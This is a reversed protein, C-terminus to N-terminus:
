SRLEKVEEIKNAYVYWLWGKVNPMGMQRLLQMYESVQQQYEPRPHGFKFDIVITENGDTMVRDPRREEISGDEKVQLITCENYIKWRDSFWDKVRSDELRKRLLETVKERTVEDDYLIGSLQLRNLAQEIDATTRITSFINHLVSGLKIYSTTQQEDDGEIFERSKNSQRFETKTEYTMVNATIPTVPQLFVNESTAKETEKNPETSYLNGYHFTVPAENNEMGDLESGKLKLLPLVKEILASRTSKADRRGIVFLNKSARTFAVYLLNLNDVTNQLHEELYDHEYITGRMQKESFDIPAIPMANFPAEKPHCWLIDQHELRWDCFPIIVNDFELGKSKHISLMRIGDTEASQITKTSITNNWEEIFADIDTSNEQTFRSLQDYFTSVYASQEQLKDLQFITYLREALEYLSLHLLEDTHHVFEEPLLGDLSQGKILLENETTQRKLVTCQYLKVITAKALMDDPHTLLHLAQIILNVAISASLQFAEDSVIHINPCHESFYDAILPIINNTRVLIAIHQPEIGQETLMNVTDALTALTRQQYDEKPLLTISVMGNSGRKEPVGQEVDSYANKLQEAGQPFEEQQKEYEQRAAEKFFANNFDIIKRQSRYNTDLTRIDLLKTSHPIEQEIDNLLRWDGSRWRYISQKVDGVILNGTNTHSMCEQLLVKFNQWQVTSTDQFEDIMIHELQTGIKEFIFPSDADKILAHLL